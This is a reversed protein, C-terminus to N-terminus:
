SERRSENRNPTGPTQNGPVDGLHRGQHGHDHDHDHDHDGHSHEHGHQGGAQRVANELQQRNMTTYDQINLRQARDRLDEVSMQNTNKQDM